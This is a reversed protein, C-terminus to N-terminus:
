SWEMTRWQLRRWLCRWSAKSTKTELRKGYQFNWSSVLNWPATTGFPSTGFSMWGWPWVVRKERTKRKRGLHLARRRAMWKTQGHRWSEQLQHTGWRKQSYRVKPDKGLTLPEIKPKKHFVTQPANLGRHYEQHKTGGRRGRNRSRSRRRGKDSGLAIRGPPPGPPSKPRASGSARVERREERVEEESEEAFDEEESGYDPAEEERPGATEEKVRLHRDPKRERDGDPKVKAAATRDVTRQNEFLKEQSNRLKDSLSTVQSNVQKDLQTIGQIQRVAQIAIEEGLERHSLSTFRYRAIENLASASSCLRCWTEEGSCLGSRCKRCLPSAEPMSNLWISRPTM